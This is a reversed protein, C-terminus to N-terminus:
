FDQREYIATEEDRSRRGSILRINDERRTIVASWHNEAIKGILLWRPEDSTRAPIEVLDADTWLEQAEESDIGHKQKNEGSKNADYEFAM